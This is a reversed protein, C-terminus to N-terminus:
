RTNRTRVEAFLYREFWNPFARAMARPGEVRLGMRQADLFSGDGRWWTVLAPITSRVCLLEPFGPNVACVATDGAKLLLFHPDYGPVEFRTVMPSKPLASVRVRRQMDLLLPELDIDENVAQRPLWRQGWTGLVAVASGLENGAKTLLYEPGHAGNTRTVVGAAVLAMLRESLLTRSIRPIGRRIDSFRVSGCLLERVILLTWRGGLVDLARSVSCYQGSESM